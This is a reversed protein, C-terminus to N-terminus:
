RTTATATGTATASPTVPRCTPTAPKPTTVAVPRLGAFKEGLVLDVVSSRRTDKVLKAGAVQTAVLQAAPQGKSGYRVVATGKVTAGRPDNAIKGVHFSRLDLATATKAAIGNRSTANYVNVSVRAPTLRAPTTATSSCPPLSAIDVAGPKGGIVGSYVGYAVGGAGVLLLLVVVLTITQRRRRRTRWSSAEKIYAV